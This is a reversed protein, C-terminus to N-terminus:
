PGRRATSTVQAFGEVTRAKGFVPGRMRGLVDVESTVGDALTLRLTDIAV